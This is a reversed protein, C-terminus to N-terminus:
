CLSLYKRGNKERNSYLKFDNKLRKREDQWEIKRTLLTIAPNTKFNLSCPKCYIPVPYTSVQFLDIDEAYDLTKPPCNVSSHTLAKPVHYHIKQIRGLPNTFAPFM